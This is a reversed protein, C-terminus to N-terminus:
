RAYSFCFREGSILNQKKNEGFNVPLSVYHSILFDRFIRHYPFDFLFFLCCKEFILQNRVNLNCVEARSGASM